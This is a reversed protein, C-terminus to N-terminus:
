FNYLIPFAVRFFCWNKLFVSVISQLIFLQFLFFLYIFSPVANLNHKIFCSLPGPSNPFRFESHILWSFQFYTSSHLTSFLVFVFVCIFLYIFLSVLDSRMCVLKLSCYLLFSLYTLFPTLYSLLFHTLLIASSACFISVIPIQLCWYVERWHFVLAIIDPYFLCRSSKDCSPSIIDIYFSRKLSTNFFCVREVLWFKKRWM